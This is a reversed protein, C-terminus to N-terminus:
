SDNGYAIVKVKCLPVHVIPEQGRCLWGSCLGGAGDRDEAPILSARDLCEAVSEVSM